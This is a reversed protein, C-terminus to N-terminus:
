RWTPIASCCDPSHLDGGCHFCFLQCNRSATLNLDLTLPDQDNRSFRNRNPTQGSGIAGKGMGRDGASPDLQIKPQLPQVGNLQATSFWLGQTMM